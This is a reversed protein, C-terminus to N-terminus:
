LVVLWGTMPCLREAARDLRRHLEVCNRSEAADDRHM